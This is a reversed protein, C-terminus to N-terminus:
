SLTFREAVYNRCQKGKIKRTPGYFKTWTKRKRYCYEIQVIGDEYFNQPIDKHFRDNMQCLGYSHGGDGRASIDRNGNECELMYVFELWWLKYAYWVLTQKYDSKDFWSHKLNGEYNLKFESDEQKVEQKIEVLKATEVEEGTLIKTDWTAQSWTLINWSYFNEEWVVDEWTLFEITIKNWASSEGSLLKEIGTLIEWPVRSWTSIKWTLDAWTSQTETINKRSVEEGTWEKNKKDDNKKEELKCWCPVICGMASLGHARYLTLEVSMRLEKEQPKTDDFLKTKKLNFLHKEFWNDWDQNYKNGFAVRSFVTAFEARTTLSNPMFNELQSGDAYIGMIQLKYAQQIYDAYEGLTSDVDPYIADKEIIEKRWIIDKAFITMIKALEARTMPKRIEPNDVWSYNAIGKEYSWKHALFQEDKLQNKEDKEQLEKQEWSKYFDVDTDKWDWLMVNEWINDLSQDIDETSWIVQLPLIITFLFLINLFYKKM